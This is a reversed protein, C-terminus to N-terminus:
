SLPHSLWVSLLPHLLSCSPPHVFPTFCISLSLHTFSLPFKTFSLLTPYPPPVSLALGKHAKYIPSEGGCDQWVVSLELDELVSFSEMTCGVVENAYLGEAM